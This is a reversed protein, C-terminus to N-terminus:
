KNYGTKGTCEKVYIMVVNFYKDTLGLIQTTLSDM